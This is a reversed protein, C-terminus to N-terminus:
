LRIHERCLLVFRYSAEFKYMNNNRVSKCFFLAVRIVVKFKGFIGEKVNLGMMEKANWLMPHNPNSKSDMEIGFATSSIVDM